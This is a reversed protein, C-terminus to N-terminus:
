TRGARVAALREALAEKLARLNPFFIVPYDKLDFPIETGERALFVPTKGSGQAYGAEYYVNPKPYTLDVVVFEAEIIGDLMRDTIRENSRAEDIREAEIECRNAGEKIADLVDPLGPDRPDMAMAIFAHGTRVKRAPVSQPSTQRAAEMQMRLQERLGQDPVSEILESLTTIPRESRLKRLRDVIARKRELLLPVVGVEFHAASNTTTVIVGVEATVKLRLVGFSDPTRLADDVRVLSDELEPISQKELQSRGLGIGELQVEFFHNAEEYSRRLMM